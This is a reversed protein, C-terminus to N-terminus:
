IWYHLRRRAAIVDGRTLGIDRLAREDMENLEDMERRLRAREQGHRMANRIMTLMPENGQPTSAAMMPHMRKRGVDGPTRAHKM